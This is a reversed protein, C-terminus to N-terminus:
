WEVFQRFVLLRYRGIIPWFSIPVDRGNVIVEACILEINSYDSSIEISVISLDTRVFLAVGGGYKKRDKRIVTYGQPCIVSDSVEPWLHTECVAVVAPNYMNVFVEFESQKNNISRANFSLWESGVSNECINFVQKRHM